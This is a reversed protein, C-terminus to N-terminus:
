ASAVRKTIAMRTLQNRKVKGAENRPLAKVTVFQIPAYLNLKRRCYDKLKSLDVVNPCARHRVQDYPRRPLPSGGFEVTALSPFPAAGEALSSALCELSTPQM